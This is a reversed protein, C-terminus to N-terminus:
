LPHLNFTVPLLTLHHYRLLFLTFFQKQVDTYYCSFTLLLIYNHLCCFPDCIFTNLLYKPKIRQLYLLVFHSTHSSINCPFFTSLDSTHVIFFLVAHMSFFSVVPYCLLVLMSMHWHSNSM